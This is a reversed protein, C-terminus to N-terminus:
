CQADEKDDRQTCAGALFFLCICCIDCVPISGRIYHIGDVSGDGVSCVGILLFKINLLNMNM